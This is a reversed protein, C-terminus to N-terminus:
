AHYLTGLLYGAFLCFAGLLMYPALGGLFNQESPNSYTYFWYLIGGVLTFVLLVGLFVAIVKEISRKDDVPMGGIERLRTADREDIIKNLPVIESSTADFQIKGDKIDTDPDLPVCNYAKTLDTRNALPTTYTSVGAGSPFTTITGAQGSTLDTPLTFAPFTRTGTFGAVEKLANLTVPNVPLGKYFVLTLGSTSLSSQTITFSTSYYAFNRSGILPLINELSFPGPVINTNTTNILKNKNITDQGKRGILGSLYPPEEAGVTGLLPLVVFIYKTPSTSDRSQFTIFLDLTNSVTNTDPLIWSNHSPATINASLIDYVTGQYEITSSDESTDISGTAAIAFGPPTTLKEWKMVVWLLQTSSYLTDKVVDSSLSLPFNINEQSM